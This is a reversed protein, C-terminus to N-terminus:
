WAQSQPRPQVVQQARKGKIQNCRAHAAQLNSPDLTLRRRTALDLHGFTAMPVKHDVASSWCSRPPAHPDLARGCIACAQAAALVRERAKAWEWSSVGKPLIM